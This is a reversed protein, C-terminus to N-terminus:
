KCVRIQIKYFYFELNYIELLIHFIAFYKKKIYMYECLGKKHTKRRITFARFTSTACHLQM